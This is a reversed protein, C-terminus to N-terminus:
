RSKDREFIILVKNVVTLEKVQWGERAHNNLIDELTEIRNKWGLSPSLVKYEKM